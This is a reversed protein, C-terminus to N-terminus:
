PKQFSPQMWHMFHLSSKEPKHENFHAKGCWRCFLTLYKMKSTNPARQLSGRLPPLSPPLNPQFKHSM